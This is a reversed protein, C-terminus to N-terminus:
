LAHNISGTVNTTSKVQIGASARLRAKAGSPHPGAAGPVVWGASFYM